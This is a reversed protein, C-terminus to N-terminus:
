DIKQKRLTVTKSVYAQLATLVLQVAGQIGRMHDLINTARGENWMYRMKEKWKYGDQDKSGDYLKKLEIDLLSFTVACGTLVVDLTDALPSHAKLQSSLRETDRKVMWDVYSLASKITTCETRIAALSQPANKYKGIFTNCSTAATGCTKVLGAVTTSIM